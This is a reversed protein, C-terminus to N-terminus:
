HPSYVWGIILDLPRPMGPGGEPKVLPLLRVLAVVIDMATSGPAPSTSAYAAHWTAALRGVAALVRPLLHM